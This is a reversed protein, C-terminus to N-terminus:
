IINENMSQNFDLQTHQVPNGFPNNMSSKLAMKPYFWTM